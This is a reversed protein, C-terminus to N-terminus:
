NLMRPLIGMVANFSQNTLVKYLGGVDPYIVEDSMVLLCAGSRDCNNNTLVIGQKLVLVDNVINYFVKAYWEYAFKANEFVKNFLCM